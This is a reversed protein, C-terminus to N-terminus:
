GSVSHGSSGFGGRGVIGIVNRGQGSGGMWNPGGGWFHYPYSPGYFYGFGHHRQETAPTCDQERNGWDALCDARSAYVDRRTQGEHTCASLAAVGVLALSVRGSSKRLRKLM